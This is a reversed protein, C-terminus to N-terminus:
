NLAGLRGVLKLAEMAEKVDHVRLISAGNLLAITNLVTTGNLAEEAKIDLVKNIMSKRSVGALIPFGLDTFTKLDHLLSYNHALTKGFGFGPDLILQDAGKSNLIIIQKKFFAYVKELVNNYSPDMQMDHPRGQMHMIVYPTNNKAILGPMNEDFTGGSIDNIMDAGLILAKEAVVSHYTDISICIDPFNKRIEQLVPELRKWEELASIDAAGPRSSACGIDIIAAGETIMKEVRVSCLKPDNYRGGDFFSDPTINLIGMITPTTLDPFKATNKMM